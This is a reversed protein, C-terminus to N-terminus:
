KIESAKKKLWDNKFLILDTFQNKNWYILEKTDYLWHTKYKVNDNSYVDPTDILNCLVWANILEKAETSTKGTKIQIRNQLENEELEDDNCFINFIMENYKIAMKLHEKEREKEREEFEKKRELNSKITKQEEPNKLIADLKKEYETPSVKKDLVDIILKQASPSAKIIEKKEKEKVKKEQEKYLFLYFLIACLTFIGLLEFFVQLM